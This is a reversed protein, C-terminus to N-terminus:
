GILATEDEEVGNEIENAVDEAFQRLRKEYLQKVRHESLGEVKIHAPAINIHVARDSRAHKPTVTVREPGNEGAGFVTPRNVVMDAGKAHWGGWSISPRGLRGGDAYWNNAREHAEAAAPSGYRGKIYNLGWAIQGRADGLAFPHGHGLAQPIGYAGSSKNVSNANWGSEQTWLAKLAPWQDPGWGAALMMARGLRENASSSGGSGPVGAFSAGGGSALHARIKKTLGAAYMGGAATVMAGPLGGLRTGPAHLAKFSVSPAGAAGAGGLGALSGLAGAAGALLQVHNIEKASAPYFPRYLGVRRLMADASASSLFGGPVGIDAAEGRTHPDNAFGGVAVSHSPSRYGSIGTITTHLLQGLAALDRAIVPEQGVSFNTGGAPSFGGGGGGVRGGRARGPAWHPRTENTVLSDLKTGFLGLIADAKAETHRNVVLEGPAGYGGDGMPVTDQLGSGPLRGGRAHKPTGHTGPRVDKYVGGVLAASKDKSSIASNAEKAASGGQEMSKVFSQAQSPSFGMATLVGVAEKQIATFDASTEERAKETQTTLALRINKWEATSGTLVQGNVIQVHHGLKSFSDEIGRELKHVEGLLKPNSRAQQRAWALMNEDITKAGAPNMGRMQRLVGSVTKAMAAEPGQAKSRIEFAHAFDTSLSQANQISQEALAQHQAKLSDKLIGQRRTLEKQLLDNATKLDSSNQDFADNGPLLQVQQELSAVSRKQAAISGSTDLGGIINAAFKGGATKKEAASLPKSPVVGFSLTHLAPGGLGLTAANLGGLSKDGADGETGLAGVLGQFAALPLIFKGGIGVAASGAKGLLGGAGAAGGLRALLGAGGAAAAGAEVGAPLILGSARQVAGGALVRGAGGAVVGGVAGGALMEAETMAAGGGVPVVPVGGPVGGGGMAAAREAVAAEGASGAVAAWKLRLMDLMGFVGMKKLLGFALIASGLAPGVPGLFHLLHDAATAVMGVSRALLTLPGAQGAVDGLLHVVSGLSSVVAPGLSSTLSRIGGVLSPLADRLANLMQAGEPGTTLSAVAKGLAGVLGVTADLAPRMEAFWRRMGAQGTVSNSWEDFRKAGKDISQWLSNGEGTAAHMLGQLGKFAHMGIDSMTKISSKTRDFYEGLKGTARALMLHRDVLKAEREITNGLWDTFPAAALLVQEIAHGFYFGSRAAAGLARAGQDSLKVLDSMFKPSRIQGGAFRALGGLDGATQGIIHRLEPAQSRVSGLLDGLGPFLGRQAVQRARQLEPHMERLLQLFARGEPTLSKLANKNGGYAKTLDSTALKAVGMAAGAGVMVAGFASGAGALDLIKPLLAVAGATLGGLAQTAGGIGAILAPWKLLGITKGLAGLELRAKKTEGRLSTTRGELRRMKMEAQDVERGMGQTEQGLARQERATTELQRAMRPGSLEDMQRGARKADAELEHLERRISRIPGSARDILIFSSEVSAAM